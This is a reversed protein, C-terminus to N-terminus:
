LNQLSILFKGVRTLASFIVLDWCPDKIAVAAAAVAVTVTVTVTATVTAAAASGKHSTANETKTVSLLIKYVM